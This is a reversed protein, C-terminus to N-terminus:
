RARGAPPNTTRAGGTTALPPQPKSKLVRNHLVIGLLNGEEGRKVEAALESAETPPMYRLLTDLWNRCKFGVAKAVVDAPSIGDDYDPVTMLACKYFADRAVRARQTNESPLSAAALQAVGLAAALLSLSAQKFGSM